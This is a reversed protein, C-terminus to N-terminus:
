PIAYFVEQLLKNSKSINETTSSFYEKWYDRRTSTKLHCKYCLTILNEPCCNTKNYDIHHVHFARDGNNLSKCLQCQYSDRERISRKLTETWDISYPKRIYVGRPM